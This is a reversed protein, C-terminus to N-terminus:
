LVQIKANFQNQIMQCFIKINTKGCKKEKLLYLWTTCTHDDIFTIFWRKGTLSQLCSSGWIDSHIMAFPKSAKYPQSPYNSRQNNTFQCIDCQFVDKNNFLSPFLHKLYQFNPHDLRFHWLM